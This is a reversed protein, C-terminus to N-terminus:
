KFFFFSSILQFVSKEDNGPILSQASRSWLFVNIHGCRNAEGSSENCEVHQQIQNGNGAVNPPFEFIKLGCRCQNGM